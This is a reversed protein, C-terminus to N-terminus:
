KLFQRTRMCEWILAIWTPNMYPKAKFAQLICGKPGKIMRRVQFWTRSDVRYAGPFPSELIISSVILKNQFQLQFIGGSTLIYFLQM